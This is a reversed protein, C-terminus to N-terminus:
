MYCFENLVKDYGRYLHGVAEDINQSRDTPLVLSLRSFLQEIKEQTNPSGAYLGVMVFFGFIRDRDLGLNILRQVLRKTDDPLGNFDTEQM